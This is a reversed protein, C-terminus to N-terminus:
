IAQQLRKEMTKNDEIVREFVNKIPTVTHMRHLTNGYICNVCLMKKEEECYLTLFNNHELCRQPVSNQYLIEFIDFCTVLRERNDKLSRLIVDDELKELQPVM